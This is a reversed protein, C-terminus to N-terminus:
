KLLLFFQSSEVGNKTDKDRLRAPTYYTCNRYAQFKLNFLGPVSWHFRRKPKQYVDQFLLICLYSERLSPLALRGSRQENSSHCSCSTERPVVLQMICTVRGRKRKSQRLEVMSKWTWFHGHWKLPLWMKFVIITYFGQARKTQLDKKKKTKKKGGDPIEKLFVAVISFDFFLCFHALILLSVPACFYLCQRQARGLANYLTALWWGEM